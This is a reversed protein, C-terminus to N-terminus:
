IIPNQHLRHSHRHRSPHLRCIIQDWPRKRRKMQTIQSFQCHSNSNATITLYDTALATSLITPPTISAGSGPSGMDIESTGISTSSKTSLHDSDPFAHETSAIPTVSLYDSGTSTPAVVSTVSLYNSAPATSPFDPPTVSAISLDDSPIASATSESSVTSIVSLFNSPAPKLPASTVPTGDRNDSKGISVTPTSLSAGANLYDTPSTNPQASQVSQATDGPMYETPDAEHPHPLDGESTSVIASKNLADLM